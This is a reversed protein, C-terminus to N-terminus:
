IGAEDRSLRTLLWLIKERGAMEEFKGEEKNGVSGDGRTKKGERKERAKRKRRWGFKM